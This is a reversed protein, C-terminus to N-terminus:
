FLADNFFHRNSVSSSSQAFYGEALQQEDFPVSYPMAISSKPYYRQFVDESTLNPAPNGSTLYSVSPSDSQRLSNVSLQQANLKGLFNSHTRNAAVADDLNEVSLNEITVDLAIKKAAFRHGIQEIGKQQLNEDNTQNHSLGKRNLHPSSQWKETTILNSSLDPTSISVIRNQHYPPPPQKYDNIVYQMNRQMVFNEPSPTIWINPIEPNSYTHMVPNAYTECLQNVSGARTSNSTTCNRCNSFQMEYLQKMREEEQFAKIVAVNYEQVTPARLASEYDPTPRYNPVASLSVSHSVKVFHPRHHCNSCKQDERHQCPGVLPGTPNYPVNLLQPEGYSMISLDKNSTSSTKDSFTNTPAFVLAGQSGYCSSCGALQNEPMSNILNYASSSLNSSTVKLHDNHDLRTNAGNLSSAAIALTSVNKNAGSFKQGFDSLNTSRQIIHQNQNCNSTLFLCSASSVSPM